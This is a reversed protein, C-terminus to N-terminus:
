KKKVIKANKVEFQLCLNGIKISDGPKIPSKTIREGNLFTGAASGLDKLWFTNDIVEIEFHNRSIFLDEKV